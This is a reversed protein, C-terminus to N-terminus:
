TAAEMSHVASPLARPGSVKAVDWMLRPDFSETSLMTLIVVGSFAVAGDGPLVSALFGMRVMAVLTTVAFIDIMSWRGIVAIVRFVRTRALLGVTSRRYTAVVMVAIAGLKAVPVVVSALLVILGLPWLHDEFLEVVGSLITHPGGHGLRTVTMIPLANAPIYLAVAAVMLAASRTLSKTKRHHLSHRCRACKTGEPARSVLGCAHCGILRGHTRGRGRDHFGHRHLAEWVAHRDLSADAAVMTLMVGGLAILAPGIEVSAIARLRTFAVFVGLLFVEVMAWPGLRELWGFLWPIWRPPPHPSREGWLASLLIFLKLAPAFVLTLLVLDGVEMM